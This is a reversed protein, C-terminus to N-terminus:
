CHWFRVYLLIPFPMLHRKMRVLYEALWVLM